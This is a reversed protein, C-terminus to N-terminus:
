PKDEPKEKKKLRDRAETIMEESTKSKYTPEYRAKFQDKNADGPRTPSTKDPMEEDFGIAAALEEVDPEAPTPVPMPKREKRTSVPSAAPKPKATQRQPPRPQDPVTTQRPVEGSRRRIVRGAFLLAIPVFFSDGFFSLIDGLPTGGVNFFNSVFFLLIWVSGVASLIRGFRAQGNRGEDSM